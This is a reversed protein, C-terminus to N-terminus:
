KEFISFVLVEIHDLDSISHQMKRKFISSSNITSAFLYIACTLTTQDTSNIWAM